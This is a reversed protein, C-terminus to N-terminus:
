LNILLSLVMSLILIVSLALLIIQGRRAQRQHSDIQPKNQRPQREPRAMFPGAEIKHVRYQSYQVAFGSRNGAGSHSSPGVIRYM